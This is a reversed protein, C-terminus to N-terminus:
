EKTKILRKYIIFDDSAIRISYIGPVWFEEKIGIKSTSHIQSYVMRGRSDFIQINTTLEEGLEISIEDSFPNPFVRVNPSSLDKSATVFNLELDFTNHDYYVIAEMDDARSMELDSHNGFESFIISFTPDEKKVMTQGYADFLLLNLVQTKENYYWSIQCNSNVSEIAEISRPSYVSLQLGDFADTELTFDIRNPDDTSSFYGSIQTKRDETYSYNVDGLKVAYFDPEVVTVGNGSVVEEPFVEKYYLDTRVFNYDQPVFRWSNNNPFHEFKGLSAAVVNVLDFNSVKRDINVDAAIEKFKDLGQLGLLYRNLDVVDAVNVGTQAKTNKIPKIEIQQATSLMKLEYLGQDNTSTVSDQNVLVTVDEIPLNDSREVLGEADYENVFCLSETGFTSPYVAILNFVTAEIDISEATFDIQICDDGTAFIEVYFIVDDDSITEGENDGDFWSVSMLKPNNISVHGSNIALDGPTMGIFYVDEPNSTLSLTFSFGQVLNFNKVRIPITNVADPILDQPNIYFTLEDLAPCMECKSGGCDIGTEDGNMLGDDCTECSGDNQTANPDFNHADPDTCGLIDNSCAGKTWKRVGAKQAECSNLYTNDDCGCVPDSVANCMVDIFENEDPSVVCPPDPPSPCPGNTWSTLGGQKMALCENDYEIGDCGCVPDIVFPCPYADDILETDVCDLDPCPGTQWITVGNKLAHCQNIYTKGDCGCVPNYQLDCQLDLDILDDDICKEKACSGKTWSTLGKAYAECPNIYTKGDCGCVPDVNKPCVLENDIRSDDICSTSSCPEPFEVGSKEAVCLNPYVKGNCDCIPEYVDPCDSPDDILSVDVCCHGLTYEYIDSNAAECINDYTIQDCGCIPEYAEESCDLIPLPVYVLDDDCSDQQCEGQKWHLIGDKQAYCSNSYTVGNCGCVPDYLAFCVTSDDSYMTTDLQCISQCDGMEYYTVGSNEAVCANAYTVGNCGCVPDYLDNCIATLDIQTSDICTPIPDCEEERVVNKRSIEEQIRICWREKQGNTIFRRLSHYSMINHATWDVTDKQLQNLQDYAVGYHNLAIDENNWSTMDEITDDVEDDTSHTHKLGFFHGIEHLHIRPLNTRLIITRRSPSTSCYGRFGVEEPGEMVYINIADEKWLYSAPDALADDEIASRTTTNIEAGFYKISIPHNVGGIFEVDHCFRYNFQNSEMFDNMWDVASHIQAHGIPLGYERPLDGDLSDLIVKYSLKICHLDTPCDSTKCETTFNQIPSYGITDGTKCVILVRWEYDTCGELTDAKIRPDSSIDIVKWSEDKVRIEWTYSAESLDSDVILVANKQTISDTKFDIDTTDCPCITQFAGNGDWVSWDGNDCQMRIQWEYDTCPRLGNLNYMSPDMTVSTTDWLLSDKIRYRRQYNTFGSLDSHLVVSSDTIGSVSVSFINPPMCDQDCDTAISAEDSVREQDGCSVIARFLYTKCSDLANYQWLNSNSMGDTKWDLDGEIMYQWSYKANSVDDWITAEVIGNNYSFASTLEAPLVCLCPGSEWSLVGAKFAECANNYNIGDCGCVTDVIAICQLSDLVALYQPDENKCNRSACDGPLYSEVGYYYAECANNYTISDCGCVPDYGYQTCSDIIYMTDIPLPEYVLDDCSQNECTGMTYSTIGDAIAFCPNAYTIGNCGCVPDFDLPCNDMLGEDIKSSDQCLQICPGDEYSLVGSNEALCLNPYTRGDCGCVPDYVTPCIIDPNILTSDICTSISCMGSSDSLSSVGYIYKAVCANAYTKGDCGCVPDWLSSCVMTEDILISDICLSASCPNCLDIIPPDCVPPIPDGVEWLNDYNLSQHDYGGLAQVLTDSGQIEFRTCTDFVMEEGDIFSVSNICFITELGDCSNLASVKFEFNTVEGGVVNDFHAEEYNYYYFENQKYAIDVGKTYLTVEFATLNSYQKIFTSTDTNLWNNIWDVCLVDEKKEPCNEFINGSQTFGISLSSLLVLITVLTPKMDYHKNTQLNFQNQLSM